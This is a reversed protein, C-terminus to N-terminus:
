AKVQQFTYRRIVDLYDFKTLAEQRHNLDDMLTIFESKYTRAKRDNFYAKNLDGTEEFAYSQWHVYAKLAPIADEPIVADGMTDFGNSKYELTVTQANVCSDFQITRAQKNIRYGGHYFGPGIGFNPQSYNFVGNVYAPWLWTAFGGYTGNCDVQGGCMGYANCLTSINNPTINSNNCGCMDEVTEGYICIEDNYDFNIFIGNCCVGIRIYDIYDDPLKATNTAQNVPLSVMKITPMLGILNLERYGNIAYHLYQEFYASMPRQRDM